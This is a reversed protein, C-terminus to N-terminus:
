DSPGPLRIEVIVPDRCNAVHRFYLIPSTSTSPAARRRTEFHLPSYTAIMPGDPEPFDVNIFRCRTGRGASAPCSCARRCRRRSREVVVRQRRDPRALEAEHELSEVQERAGVCQLVDRKREEVRADLARSSELSAWGVEQVSTPRASRPLWLGLSSEPPWCCRTAIARARTFSGATRRASSGVPLRSEWVLSSSM